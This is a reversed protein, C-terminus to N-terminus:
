QHYNQDLHCQLLNKESSKEKGRDSDNWWYETSMRQNIVSVIFKVITKTKLLCVFLLIISVITKNKIQMNKIITMTKLAARCV